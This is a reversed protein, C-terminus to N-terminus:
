KSAFVKLTRIMQATFSYENDYWSLVKVMQKGDVDMVLTSQADFLTGYTIGITDSSVIPDETYGVTDSQANKVAQNIEEATVTKKLEVVLDVISGTIVPVRLAIGDLKGKLQPLVLGVAAAAGTSTPVINAAAARGRRTHIGKKHPIDLTVQDNTYAHVTTMFGKVIGFNDDLIKAIPALCNTTCSAASIIKDEKTLSDHNVGYVITKINGKAPASIVVKKAGAKLHKGAADDSVFFGTCELVVDVGLDKWPLLEPDKQSLVPIHKGEVVIDTGVYSVNKNYRGQSSDYKLLYALQEADTLDNIAVIEFDSKGFMERFALRGIRGFGNIAVKVAM